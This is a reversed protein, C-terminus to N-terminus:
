RADMGDKEMLTKDSGWATEPEFDYLCFFASM